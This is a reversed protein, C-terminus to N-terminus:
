SCWARGWLYLPVRFLSSYECDPITSSPVQTEIQPGLGPCFLSSCSHLNKSFIFTESYNPDLSATALLQGESAGPSSLGPSM